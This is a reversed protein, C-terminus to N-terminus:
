VAGGAATDRARRQIRWSATIMQRCAAEVEATFAIRHRGSATRRAALRGTEIWRCVVSLGIDLRAAVQPITLEGPAADAHAGPLGETHRVWRVATADFPRDSGTRLGVANLAAAVEDDRQKGAREAIFAIAEASTGSHHIGPRLVVLEESAGSRWHIGIRVREGVEEPDSTLTVDAVLARLLRKRDKDSTSPANWLRPLDAALAELESRPPLVVEAAAAAVAAEAEAQARLKAEWREELTRAVLRNEPECAHFAREAREAEYRARQLALESARTARARRETVEDSAALALAVQDASVTALLRGAVARDVCTASIGRCGPLETHDQRATACDYYARRSRYHTSMAHGCAGCYVLGQVLASGERPPRAGDHTCNAAMRSVNQLHREWSIYAAHHDHICVLWEAQPVRLTRTRITGEADVSRRARHRGYVFAGAYCPNQVLDQIRAYSLTGWRIQGAWSGDYARQPFPRGVFAAVVAYASGAREFAAFADAIAARIEENPDMVIHAEDDYTYGVPLPMRLEGRRAAALKSDQLRGALIHLEAESMTGKLGLLLRDNFSRLDYIGDADVVLADTISCFELLRQLDASSRALRSIELGFVAGVEGLCVRSVLEQFDGRGSASRGSHGLDGDLVRIRERPWGLGSAHDALAYQRATSETNFRM